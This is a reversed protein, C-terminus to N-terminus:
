LFTYLAEVVANDSSLQNLLLPTGAIRELSVSAGEWYALRPRIIAAAMNAFMGSSSPMALDRVRLHLGEPVDLFGSVLIPVTGGMIKTEVRAQLHLCNDGTQDATIKAGTIRIGHDSGIANAIKELLQELATMPIAVKVRTGRLTNAESPTTDLSVEGDQLNLAKLFHAATEVAEQASTPVPIPSALLPFIQSPQM